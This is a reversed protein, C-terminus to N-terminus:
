IEVRIILGKPMSPIATIQGNMKEIIERMHFAGIGFGGPTTTEGLDFIAQPNSLYKSDLGKGNDIFDIQCKGNVNKSEIRLSTANAKLANSIINEIFMLIEPFDLEKITTGLVNFSYQLRKNGKAELYEKILRVIDTKIKPSSLSFTASDIFKPLNEIKAASLDIAMIIEIIKDFDKYDDADFDEFDCVLSRIEKAFNVSLHIAHKYREGESTFNNELVFLREHAKEVEAVASDRQEEAKKRSEKERKAKERELAANREANEKAFREDEAKKEALTKLREAENKAEEKKREIEALEKNIANGIKTRETILTGIIKGVIEILKKIRPDSISYGERNSTSADEFMDDDLVDFSIEGEIYSALAATSAVYNMLNNVALKGRVYLRLANPHNQIKKGNESNRKLINNDLSSHIGIWGVMKFPIDRMEGQLNMMPITGSCIYKSEDLKMTHRPYDVQPDVTEKTLFVKPRIKNKYGLGTNDFIAYMTDFNINKKIKKFKIQDKDDNIICVFISSSIVNELYYDALIVPLSKLREPGIRRLDVDSLHIMTGTELKGWHLKSILRNDDYEVKNLAPIDSDLIGQTDIVWSSKEDKTKTYLYYRPSLYLAALKGIGKRGLTKGKKNENELRKNRGILTYKLCLDEYSMGSGDDFIEVIARDKNRIDILVYINNAGADIGNAVIESVATWPNSYLNKGLLKMAYYTFNFPIKQNEDM